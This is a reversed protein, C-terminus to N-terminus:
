RIIELVSGDSGMIFNRWNGHKKWGHKRVKWEGEGYVKLGTSDLVLTIPEKSSRRVRINVEIDKSRRQVQSYSPVSLGIGCLKFIDSVFGEAQRYGLGYLHKMTLCFEIAVSSYQIAGGPNRKGTYYWQSQVEESLWITLGGRRKLSDNYSSWNRLKYNERAKIRTKNVKGM